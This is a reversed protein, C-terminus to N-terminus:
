PGENLSVIVISINDLFVPCRVKAETLLKKSYETPSNRLVNEIDEDRLNDTVGDSCLLLHDVDKPSVETCFADRTTWESNFAPGIGLTILNKMPHNMAEEETITGEDILEQVVSHDKSLKFLKGKKIGYVRSDGANGAIIKDKLIVCFAITTGSDSYLAINSEKQIERLMSLAEKCDKVDKLGKLRKAAWLSAEEGYLHGGMGDCVAVVLPLKDIELETYLKEEQYISDGVLIADEQNPRHGIDMIATIKIKM